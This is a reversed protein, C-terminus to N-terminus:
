KVKKTNTHQNNNIKEYEADYAVTAESWIRGLIKLSLEPNNAAISLKNIKKNLANLEAEQKKTLANLSNRERIAVNRKNIAVDREGIAREKGGYLYGAGAGLGGGILGGELMRRLKSKKKDGILLNGVAGVGAGSLGGALSYFLEPNAIMLEDSKEAHEIKDLLNNVSSSFTYLDDINSFNNLFQIEQQSFNTQNCRNM